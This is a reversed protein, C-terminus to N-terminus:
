RRWGKLQKREEKSLLIKVVGAMKGRSVEKIFHSQFATWWLGQLIFVLLFKFSVVTVVIIYQLESFM